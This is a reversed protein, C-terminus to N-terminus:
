RRPVKAKSRTGRSRSSRKRALPGLALRPCGGGERGAEIDISSVLEKTM